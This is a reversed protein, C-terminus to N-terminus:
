RILSITLANRATRTQLNNAKLKNYDLLYGIGLSAKRFHLRFEFHSRVAPANRWWGCHALNKHNGIYIEYFSEGYGPMFFAGLTRVGVRESLSVPLRGLRFDYQVSGTLSVGCWIPLSVPNNSNRTLWLGGVDFGVNGGGSLTWSDAPRFVREMGWSFEASLTYEIATGPSNMLRGGYLGAEFRMRWKEPAFPMGKSWAGRLGPLYGSYNLPSLYTSLADERVLVLSYESCIRRPDTDDPRAPIAAILLLIILLLKKM